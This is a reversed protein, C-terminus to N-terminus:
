HPNCPCKNINRRIIGLTQPAKRAVSNCQATWNLTNSIQVSLYYHSQVSKPQEGCFIYLSKTDTKKLSIDNHIMQHSQIEYALHKAM